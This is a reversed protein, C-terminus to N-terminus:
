VLATRLQELRTRVSADIVRDGIRIVLGGLIAPDRQVTTQVEGGLKESLAKAIARQQTDELSVAAVVEARMRGSAQDELKRYEALVKPLVAVRGREVLLRVLNRTAPAADELASLALQEREAVSLRPNTLLMALTPEGLLGVARELEGGRAAVAGGDRAVAFSAAAYRKAIIDGVAV